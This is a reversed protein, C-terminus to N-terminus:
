FCVYSCLLLHKEFGQLGLDKRDKEGMRKKGSCRNRSSIKKAFKETQAIIKKRLQNIDSLLIKTLYKLRLYDIEQQQTMSEKHLGCTWNSSSDGMYTEMHRMCFVGCDNSNGRTRWNMKLRQPEVNELQSASKHKVKRLYSCFLLIMEEPVGKYANSIKAVSNRNDLVDVAPDKLNM